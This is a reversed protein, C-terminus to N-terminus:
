HQQQVQRMRRNEWAAKSRESTMRELNAISNPHSPRPPAQRRNNAQEKPGEWRCNEPSYPGDNDIRGLTYGDPRPGLDAYFNEFSDIWRDCVSIGRGGYAPFKPNNPNLCRQKMGSWSNYELTHRMNHTRNNAPQGKPHGMACGCSKTHGDKLQDGRVLTETGCDCLCRYVPGRKAISHSYGMVLLKGFRQDTYDRPKPGPM